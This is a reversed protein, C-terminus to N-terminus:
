TLDHQTPNVEYDCLNIRKRELYIGGGGRGDKQGELEIYVHKKNKSRVIKKKKQSLTEIQPM